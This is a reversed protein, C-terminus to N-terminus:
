RTRVGTRCFLCQLIQAWFQSGHKFRILFGGFMGVIPNRKEVAAQCGGMKENTGGARSQLLTAMRALGRPPVGRM